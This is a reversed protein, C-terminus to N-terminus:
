EDKDKQQKDNGQAEEGPETAGDDKASAQPPPPPATKPTRSDTDFKLKREDILRLEEERRDLVDELDADQSTQAIVDGQTMFGDRVAAAYAAEEKTPDIWSWGRPKFRVAQYKAPNTYYDAGAKVAGVLVAADMFERHVDARFNRCFFGQLVRYLARDELLAMRASSYTATTYDRSLSEYSIGVGIAMKRVMFRLFPDLSPNPAYGSMGAVEEGPLLKQWQGPETDIIQRGAITGDAAMPEPSKIFGVINAAARAKVTESETLGGEDHLSRMTAHFWPEGRTQPWRSCVYLHVIDSAPVRMLQSAEFTRFQQDGPHNPSFWYAAPRGWQDVEVGMRIANGNPARATQWNDLLRDAEIVELALPIRSRGFPQRVKRAIFEGSTVLQVLAMQEIDAFGLIGATHCSDRDCWARWADEISDNIGKQLAGGASKVQAQMGVGEGIVNNRIVRVAQVAFPNDRVLQRSRARLLPLNGLLETDASTTPAMWDSTLRNVAAGEYGRQQQLVRQRQVAQSRILQRQATYQDLVLSRKVSLDPVILGTPRAIRPEGHWTHLPAAMM